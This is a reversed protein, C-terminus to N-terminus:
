EKVIEVLDGTKLLNANGDDTDLHCELRFKESEKLYVNDLIGGKENNIKIKVKDINVLGLNLRDEKTLHIHRNAIICGEKLDVQGNPGVITIPSSGVLEGSNRVPPNLGLIYTDTRSVEVQSYSRIPGLVRVNNIQGKPGKITVMSTSAFEGKQVLDQKKELNFGQGFLAELDVQKLHVHRNSIGVKIKM